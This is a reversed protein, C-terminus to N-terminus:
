YVKGLVVLLKARAKEFARLTSPCRGEHTNLAFGKVDRAKLPRVKDARLSEHQLCSSNIPPYFGGIPFFSINPKAWLHTARRLSRCPRQGQGVLKQFLKHLVKLHRLYTKLSLPLKKSRTLLNRRYTDLLEADKPRHSAAKHM